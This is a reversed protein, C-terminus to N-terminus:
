NDLMCHAHAMNDDTVQGARSYKEVNDSLRCSKFFFVNNFTFYTNQNQRCNQRFYNENYICILLVYDFIYIPRWYWNNKDPKLSVQSNEVLNRFISLYWIEDSDTWRSGLDEMSVSKGVFLCVSM